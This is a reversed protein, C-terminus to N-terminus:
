FQEAAGDTSSSTWKHFLRGIKMSLDSTLQQRVADEAVGQATHRPNVKVSIPYGGASDSPWLVDGNDGVVRVRALATGSYLESALAHTVEFSELDVYIVQTAGVAKGIADLPMKRYAEVDKRRLAAADESDVLPAADNALLDDCLARNLSDAQMRLSAPNHFNEVLVLTPEKALEYQPPIVPDPALKAAAVGLITCGGQILIFSSPLLIFLACALRCAIETSGEDKM